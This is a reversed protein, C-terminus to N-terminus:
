HQRKVYLYDLREFDVFPKIIAVVGAVGPGAEVRRVTGIPLGPPYIAGMGSTIVVDGTQVDANRPLKKMVLEGAMAIRAPAPYVIGQDWSRQVKAAVAHQRDTLLVVKAVNKAEVELIRGVLGRKECVIDGPQLERSPPAEVRVWARRGGGSSGIVRVPVEAFPEGLEFGLKNMIRKNRMFYENLQLNKVELEDVKEELQRIKETLSRSGKLSAASESLSGHLAAFSSELPRLLV